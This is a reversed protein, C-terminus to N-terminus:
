STLRLRRLNPVMVFSFVFSSLLATTCFVLFRDGCDLVRDVLRIGVRLRYVDLNGIFTHLHGTTDRRAFGRKDHRVGALLLVVELDFALVQLLAEPKRDRRPAEFVICTFRFGPV